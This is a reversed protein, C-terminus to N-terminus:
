FVPGTMPPYLCLIIVAELPFLQWQITLWLRMRQMGESASCMKSGNGGAALEKELARLPRQTKERLRHMVKDIAKDTEVIV